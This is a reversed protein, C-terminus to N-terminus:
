REKGLDGHMDIEVGAHEGFSDRVIWGRVHADRAYM